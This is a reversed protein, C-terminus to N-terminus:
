QVNHRQEPDIVSRTKHASSRVLLYIGPILMQQHALVLALSCGIGPTKGAHKHEHIHRTKDSM